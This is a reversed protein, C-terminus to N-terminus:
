DSLPSSMTAFIMEVTSARATPVNRKLADSLSVMRYVVGDM